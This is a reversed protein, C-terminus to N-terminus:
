ISYIVQMNGLINQRRIPNHSREIAARTVVDVPRDFHHAFDREIEHLQFFTVRADPHFTVLLDIDSDPRFDDRLVSGFLALEVIKWRNCLQAIATPTTRLRQTLLLDLALSPTM